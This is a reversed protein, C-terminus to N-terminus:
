LDWRRGRRDDRYEDADDPHTDPTVALRPQVIAPAKRAGPAHTELWQYAGSMADVIDFYPVDPFGVVQDLFAATWQGAFLRLGDRQLSHHRDADMGFEPDSEDGGEGRRVYGRYCTSAVPAARQMKAAPASPNRMSYIADIPRRHTGPRDGDVQFGEAKLRKEIALYQAIGGSGGEIEIHVVVDRGDARATQVILNDREGPVKRFAMVHEIARCGNVHRAMRCSATYAAGEKESAALDWSRVRRCDSRSWTDVDPDLLPGFWERRFFDGPERADWDGHLMQAQLTPHLHSLSARYADRDLTPNDQVLSRIFRINGPDIQTPPNTENDLLDMFRSKVWSHGVGGPNSTSIIRKPIHRHAQNQRGRSFGIWKYAAPTPWHTLEDWAVLSYDAGQYRTKDRDNDLYGFAIKAGSPFVFIKDSGNWTAGAPLWWELARDLIAGPQVMEAHTRRLILAHYAPEHVYQAAAMLLADTKGGGAAGGFLVEFAKTPDAATLHAGLLDIQKPHPWHPIFPNERVHPALRDFADLAVQRFSDKAM